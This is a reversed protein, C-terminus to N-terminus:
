QMRSYHGEKQKWDADVFKHFVYTARGLTNAWRQLRKQSGTQTLNPDNKTLERILDAVTQCTAVLPEEVSLLEMRGPTIKFDANEVAVHIDWQFTESEPADLGQFSEKVLKLQATNWAVGPTMSFLINPWLANGGCKYTARDVATHRWLAKKMHGQNYPEM